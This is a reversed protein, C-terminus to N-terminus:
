RRSTRSSGALASEMRGIGRGVDLADRMPALVAWENMREVVERTAAALLEPNGLSYLAVSAEESQRV